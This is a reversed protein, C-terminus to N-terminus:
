ELIGVYRPYDYCQTDILLEVQEKKLFVKWWLSSSLDAKMLDDWCEFTNINIKQGKLMAQAEKSSIKRNIQENLDKFSYPKRAMLYVNEEYVIKRVELKQLIQLYIM